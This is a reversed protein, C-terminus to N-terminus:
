GTWNANNGRTDVHVFSRYVGIGGAFVGRARYEQLKAAWATPSGSDCVFDIAKFQMHFSNTASGDICRNYAPARYLSLVHIPAALDERLKDLVAITPAINPWLSEPPYSNLGKCAGNSNQSGLFLLEDAAFHRLGLGAVFAVFKPYLPWGAHPSDGAVPDGIPSAGGVMAAEGAEDSPAIVVDRGSAASGLIDIITSPAALDNTTVAAAGIGWGALAYRSGHVVGDGTAFTMKRSLVDQRWRPSSGNAIIGAFEARLKDGSLGSGAAQLLEARESAGIDNQIAADFWFATDAITLPKGTMFDAIHQLAKKWYVAYAREIQARRSEPLAGVRQFADRWPQAVAYKNAGLSIGDAWALREAKSSAQIQMFQPYLAGFAAAVAGPRLQEIRALVAGIEGNVLTFGVLGFTIGAGDFNGVVRDFSTGEFDASVNLCLDFPAPARDSRTLHKWQVDDIADQEPYGNAKQWRRLAGSTISGFDGDPEVAQGVGVLATQLAMVLPGNPRRCGAPPSALLVTGTARPGAPPTVVAPAEPPPQVIAPAPKGAKGDIRSKLTVLDELFFNDINRKITLIAADLIGSLQNLVAARKMLGSLAVEEQLDALKILADRISQQVEPRGDAEAFASRLASRAEEILDDLEAMTAGERGNRGIM